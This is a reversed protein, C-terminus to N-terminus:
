YRWWGVSVEVGPEGREGSGGGPVGRSQTVCRLQWLLRMVVMLTRLALGCPVIAKDRCSGQILGRM